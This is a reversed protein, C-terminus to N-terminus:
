FYNVAARHAAAVAVAARHAAAVAVAARHAAAVAVAARHAAAVAVAVVALHPLTIRKVTNLQWGGGEQKVVAAM